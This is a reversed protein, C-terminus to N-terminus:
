NGGFIAALVFLIVPMFTAPFGRFWPRRAFLLFYGINLAQGVVIAGVAPWPWFGGFVGRGGAVLLSYCFVDGVGLVPYPDPLGPLPLSVSLRRLIPARGMLYANLTWRGLRTFSVLDMIAFGALFSLLSGATPLWQAALMGAAAGGLLNAVSLLSLRRRDLGRGWMWLVAGASVVVVIALGVPPIPSAAISLLAAALSVGLIHLSIWALRKSRRQGLGVEPRRNEDM